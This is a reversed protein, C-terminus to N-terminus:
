GIFDETVVIRQGTVAIGIRVRTFSRRLLNDRHVPSHQRDSNILGLLAKEASRPAVRISGVALTRDSLANLLLLSVLACRFRM